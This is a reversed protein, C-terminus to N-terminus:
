SYNERLLCVVLVWMAHFPRFVYLMPILVQSSQTANLSILIWFFFRQYMSKALSESDLDKTYVVTTLIGASLAMPTSLTFWSNEGSSLRGYKLGLLIAVLVGHMSCM